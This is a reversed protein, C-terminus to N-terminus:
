KWNEPGLVQSNQSRFLGPSGDDCDLDVVLMLMFDHKSYIALVRILPFDYKQSGCKEHM